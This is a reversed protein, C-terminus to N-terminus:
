MSCFNYISLGDPAVCHVIFLETSPTASRRFHETVVRNLQSINASSTLDILKM